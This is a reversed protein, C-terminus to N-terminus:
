TEVDPNNSVDCSPAHTSLYIGQKNELVQNLTRFSSVHEDTQVDLDRNCEDDVHQDSDDNAEEYAHDEHDGYVRIDVVPGSSPGCGDDGYNDRVLLDIHGGVYQNLQAKVRVM